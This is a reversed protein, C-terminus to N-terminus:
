PRLRARFLNTINGVAPNGNPLSLTQMGVMVGTIAADNPIAISFPQGVTVNNSILIFTAPNGVTLYGYPAILAEFDLRGIVYVSIGPPGFVAATLTTGLKPRGAVVMFYAPREYAGMDPLMMGTLDHDLLRSNEDHDKRTATATAVDAVNLCPSGTKLRLNGVAPMADEFLPDANINGNAGALTMDGNSNLVDGAVFGTFNAGNGWSISNRIKGTYLASVKRIGNSVNAATTAHVVDFAGGGNLVIGEACDFAVLNYADGSHASLFIGDAAAHEVRVSRAAVNASSSSLGAIGFNGSFRVLVNEVTGTSGSSYNLGRWAGKAGVSPGDGNTDGAHDDDTFSTFVIPEQATGRLDLTGSVSITRANDCKVVVGPHMTVTTSTPVTLSAFVFLAGNLCNEPGIVVDGTSSSNIEMYNGGNGSATNTTCGGVTDLRMNDMAVGTCNRFSCNKVTARSISSNFDIGADSGELVTCNRLIGDFSSTEFGAYSFNGTYRLELWDCVSADSTDSLVVGRWDGRSGGSPGDNNTDGYVSDDALSTMYVPNSGVGNVLLTGNVNLQRAGAWKLAVGAQLTLTVGVPVTASAIVVIAGNLCNAPSVTLNRSLNASAVELYNGGNGSASNNTFRDVSDIHVNDIALGTNGVFRCRRVTLMSAVNNTDIGADAGNQVLCDEITADSSSMEFGAYSFNGCYHLETYRFVSADSTPTLSIGRWDGATGSSPGDGNTDGYIADDAFSTIYVPNAATGATNMTGNVNIQRAGSVKIAVGAGLTLTMSTPVTVSTTLVLAGNPCNVATISLNKTVTASGVEVYNGGNGTATINTIDPVSDIRANDVAIGANNQFSCNSVRITATSFNLDVGADSGDRVVCQDITVPANGCEFGAFSFNGPYRVELGRIVSGTSSTGFSIGRWDGPSGVSPGNNGSDGGISDDEISTFFARATSSGTVNLTGSVTIQRAAGFKVIAGAQVTLTMGTPVTISGTVVYVNGSVLPGGSGDFVNGSLNIQAAATTSGLTAFVLAALLATVRKM